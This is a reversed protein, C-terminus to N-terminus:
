LSLIENKIKLILDKYQSFPGKCHCDIYYNRLNIKGNLNLKFFENSGDFMFKEIRGPVFFNSSYGREVKNIKIVDQNNVRKGFYIEDSDWSPGVSLVNSLYDSFDIETHLLKGFVKGKAIVYCIPYRDPGSLTGICEPRSNDYADSGIIVMEEDSFKQISTYLYDKNFFFMDIDSIMCVEEPFFKTGYMRYIQAQHASHINKLKKVKKVLGSGDFYFDSDEETIYFLVPMIGLKKYTIEAVHPWFQLYESDNSSFIVKDIKM